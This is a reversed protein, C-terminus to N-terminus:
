RNAEDFQLLPIDGGTTVATDLLETLAQETVCGFPRKGSDLLALADMEAPDTSRRIEKLVDFEVCRDAAPDDGGFNGFDTSCGINLFFACALLTAGKVLCGVGDILNRKMEKQTDM